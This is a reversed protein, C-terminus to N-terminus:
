GDLRGWVVTNGEIKMASLSFHKTIGSKKLACHIISSQYHVIPKASSFTSLTTTTTARRSVVPAVAGSTSCNVISANAENCAITNENTPNIGNRRNQRDNCLTFITNM